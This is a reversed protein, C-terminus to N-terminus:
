GVFRCDIVGTRTIVQRTLLLLESHPLEDGYDRDVSYGYSGKCIARRPTLGNQSCITTIMRVKADGNPSEADIQLQINGSQKLGKPAIACIDDFARSPLSERDIRLHHRYRM